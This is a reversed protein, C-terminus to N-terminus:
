FISIRKVEKIKKVKGIISINEKYEQDYRKLNDGKFHKKGFYRHIIVRDDEAKFAVLDLFSPQVEEVFVIDGENLIPSMSVGDIKYLHLSMPM